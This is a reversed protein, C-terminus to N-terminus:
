NSPTCDNKVIDDVCAPARGLLVASHTNRRALHALENATSNCERKVKVMRWGPLLRAHDKAEALIFSLASRDEEEQMAQVIRACDSEVIVPEHIWQAALRVGELCAWAEAEAADHCEPIARWATLIIQGKNDRAIVGVGADGRQQVFSGDINLKVWGAPPPEWKSKRDQEENASGSHRRNDSPFCPAKGQGNGERDGMSEVINAQM